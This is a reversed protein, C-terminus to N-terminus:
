KRPQENVGRTTSSHAEHVQIAHGRISWTAGAAKTCTEESRRVYGPVGRACFYAWCVESTRVAYVASEARYILDLAQEIESM